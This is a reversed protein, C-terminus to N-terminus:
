RTTTTGSIITIMSIRERRLTIPVNVMCQVSFSNPQSAVATIAAATINTVQPLLAPRRAAKVADPAVNPKSPHSEVM